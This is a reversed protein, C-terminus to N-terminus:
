SPEAATARLVCLRQEARSAWGAYVAAMHSFWWYRSARLDICPQGSLRSSLHQDLEHRVQTALAEFRAAHRRWRAAHRQWYPIAEAAAVDHPSPSTGDLVAIPSRDNDSPTRAM